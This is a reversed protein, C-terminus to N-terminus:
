KMMFVAMAFFDEVASRKPPTVFFFFFAFNGFVDVATVRLFDFGFPSPAAVFVPFDVLTSRPRRVGSRFFLFLDEAGDVGEVVAECDVLEDFRASVNM